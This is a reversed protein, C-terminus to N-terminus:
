RQGYRGGYLSRVDPTDLPIIKFIGRPTLLSEAADEWARQNDVESKLPLARVLADPEVGLGHISCADSAIHVEGAREKFVRCQCVNHM